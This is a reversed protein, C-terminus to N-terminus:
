TCIIKIPLLPEFAGRKFSILYKGNSTTGEPFILIPPYRKGENILKGRLKLADKVSDKDERSSRDVFISQIGRACAGFFM